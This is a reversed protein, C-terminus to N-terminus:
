GIGGWFNNPYFGFNLSFGPILDRESSDKPPLDDRLYMIIKCKERKMIFQVNMSSMGPLRSDPRKEHVLDKFM